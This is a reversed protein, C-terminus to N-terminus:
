VCVGSNNGGDDEIACYTANYIYFVGLFYIGM